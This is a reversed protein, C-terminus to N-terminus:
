KIFGAHSEWGYQIAVDIIKKGDIIQESAKLLKKRTIYEKLTMKMEDKYIRLFHFESYGAEYSIEKVSLEEEIHEDIYRLININVKNSKM